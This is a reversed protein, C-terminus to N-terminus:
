SDHLNGIRGPFWHTAEGRRLADGRQWPLLKWILERFVEQTFISNAIDRGTVSGTSESCGWACGGGDLAFSDRVLTEDFLPLRSRWMRVADTRGIRFSDPLASVTGQDFRLFPCNTVQGDAQIVLQNGYCTCDITFPSGERLADLKKTLQYEMVQDSGGNRLGAVVAQAAQVAYERESMGALERTLAHGKLLNYGFQGVGLGDMLERYGSLHDLNSPTITVSAVVRVGQGVLLAISRSIADFTPKGEKTIRFRDNHAAPGDLGVAVMVGSKALLQALETTMLLGNTCLMLELKEPLTGARREGQVYELLQELLSQNLLPEGGYFVLFYPKHDEGYERVHRSWLRIGAVANEFSLLQEGYQRSLAPIPCYTCAFNCGQALMLYLITPRDLRRLEQGRALRLMEDDAASDRVLLKRDLLAAVLDRNDLDGARIQEWSNEAVYIPEPRLVHTLAVVGDRALSRLFRSQVFVEANSM